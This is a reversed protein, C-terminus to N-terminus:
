YAVHSSVKTMRSSTKREIIVILFIVETGGLSNIIVEYNSGGM